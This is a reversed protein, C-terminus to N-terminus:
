GPEIPDSARLLALAASEGNLQLHNHYYDSNLELIVPEHEGLAIDWGLTRPFPLLTHARVALALIQPWYPLVLGEIRASTGPHEIHETTRYRSIARACRGTALDIPAVIGGGTTNDVEAQGTGIRLVAAIPAPLGGEGTLTVIRVTNASQPHLAALAPHQVVREQIVWGEDGADLAAALAALSLTSGNARRVEGSAADFGVVITVDRGHSSDLPKIAVGAPLEALLAALSSASVLRRGDRRMGRSRHYYGYCAPVRLGLTEFYLAAVWKNFPVVEAQQPNLRRRLRSFERRRMPAGAVPEYLRLTYYDDPSFGQARFWFMELAQRARGKGSRLSAAEGAVHLAARIQDLSRRFRHAM